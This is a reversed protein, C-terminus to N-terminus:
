RFGNMLPGLFLANLKSGIGTAGAVIVISVLGAVMAYEISTAGRRGALFRGIM